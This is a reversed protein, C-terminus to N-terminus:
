RPAIAYLGDVRRRDLRDVPEDFEIRGARVGVVRDCTELALAVDHQSAVLTRDPGLVTDLLQMVESARTPDLGATPEDALVLTPGQRLARAIAVRRQEGGSLRDTREYLKDAIGVEDLVARAEEVERPSVLSWLAKATSWDGLRGANVNHIVRLRATLQLDQPVTAIHRGHRRRWGDDDQLPSGDILVTGTTPAVTGSMTALLTSKGAGSPGLVAVREGRHVVLDVDTLARHAGFSVSVARLEVLPSAALHDDRGQEPTPDDDRRM